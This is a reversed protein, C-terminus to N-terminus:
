ARRHHVRAPQGTDERVKEGLQELRDKVASKTRLGEQYDNLLSDPTLKM